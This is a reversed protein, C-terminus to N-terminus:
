KFLTKLLFNRCLIHGRTNHASDPLVISIKFEVPNSIIPHCLLNIRTTQSTGICQQALLELHYSPRTVQAWLRLEPVAKGPSVNGCRLLGCDDFLGRHFYFIVYPTLFSGDDSMNCRTNGISRLKASPPPLSNRLFTPINGGRLRYWLESSQLSQVSNTKGCM